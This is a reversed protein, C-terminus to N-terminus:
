NMKLVASTRVYWNLKRTQLILSFIGQKPITPVANNKEEVKFM